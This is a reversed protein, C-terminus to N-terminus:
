KERVRLLQSPILSQNNNPTEHKVVPYTERPKIIHLLTKSHCQSRQFQARNTSKIAVFRARKNITRQIQGIRSVFIEDVNVTSFTFAFRKDQVLPFCLHITATCSSNLSEIVRVQTM